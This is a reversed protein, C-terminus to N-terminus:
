ESIYTSGETQSQLNHERGCPFRFHQVNWTRDQLNPLTHLHVLIPLIWLRQLHNLDCKQLWNLNWLGPALSPGPSNKGRAGFGWSFTAGQRDLCTGGLPQGGTKTKESCFLPRGPPVTASDWWSIHPLTDQLPFLPWWPRSIPSHKISEAPSSFPLPPLVTPPSPFQPPWIVESTPSPLPPPKPHSKSHPPSVKLCFTVCM